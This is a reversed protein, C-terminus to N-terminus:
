GHVSWRKILELDEPFAHVLHEIEDISWWNVEDIDSDIIANAVREDCTALFYHTEVQYNSIIARKIHLLQNVSIRYGTEELVERQCCQELTEGDELGGSPLSWQQIDRNKVLLIKKEENICLAASGIRKKM